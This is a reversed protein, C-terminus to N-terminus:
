FYIVRLPTGKTSAISIMHKSGNSSGDWFVICADAHELMEANRVVGAKKGLQDWKAPFRLVKYKREDAYAEGTRDAGSATGSIIQIDHTKSKECLIADCKEKMLDLNSFSRSGAIIVKFTPKM